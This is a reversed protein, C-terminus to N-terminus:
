VEKPIGMENLIIVKTNYNGEKKINRILNCFSATIRWSGSLIILAHEKQPECEQLYSRYQDVSHPRCFDDDTKAEGIIFLGSHKYFVDPRFNNVVHPPNEASYPSDVLIHVHEEQPLRMKLFSHIMTVYGMHAASEAM